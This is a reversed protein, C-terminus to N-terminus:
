PQPQWSSQVQSLVRLPDCSEQGLVGVVWGFKPSAGFGELKPDWLPLGVGCGGGGWGGKAGCCQGGNEPPPTTPPPSPCGCVHPGRAMGQCWWEWPPVGVGRPVGQCGLEGGMGGGVWMHLAGVCRVGGLGGVGPSPGLGNQGHHTTPHLPPMITPHTHTPPPPTWSTGVHGNVVGM